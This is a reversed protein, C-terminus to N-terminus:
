IKKASEGSGGGKRDKNIDAALKGIEDISKKAFVM